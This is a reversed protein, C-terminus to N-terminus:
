NQRSPGCPEKVLSLVCTKALDQVVKQGQLENLDAVMVKAGEKLLHETIGLGIGASSLLDAPDHMCFPDILRVAQPM